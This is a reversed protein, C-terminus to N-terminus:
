NCFIVWVAESCFGVESHGKAAARHLPTAQFHNRLDIIDSLLGMAPSSVSEDKRVGSRPVEALNGSSKNNSDRGGPERAKLLEVM